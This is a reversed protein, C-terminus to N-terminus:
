FLDHFQKPMQAMKKEFYTSKNRILRLQLSDAGLIRRTLGTPTIVGFFVVALILRNVVFGIKEAGWMWPGYIFGLGRPFIFGLLEFITACFLLVWWNRQHIIYQILWLGVFFFGGIIGFLRLDKISPQPRKDM